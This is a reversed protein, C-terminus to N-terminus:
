QIYNFPKLILQFLNKFQVQYQNVGRKTDVDEVRLFYKGITEDEKMQLQEFQVRYTQLKADKVKENGEYSSILKDWMDKATELHVVKVFEEEALESLIANMAKSNFNFELKGDKNALVVLKVYGIDVV